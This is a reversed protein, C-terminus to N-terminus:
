HPRETKELANVKCKERILPITQRVRVTIYKLSEMMTINGPPSIPLTFENDTQSGGDITLDGSTGGRDSSLDGLVEANLM